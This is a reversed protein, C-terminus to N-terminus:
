NMRSLYSRRWNFDVSCGIYNVDVETQLKIQSLEFIIIEVLNVSQKLGFYLISKKNQEEGTKIKILVKEHSM